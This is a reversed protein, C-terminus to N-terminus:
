MSRESMWIGRVGGDEHATGQREHPCGAPGARCPCRLRVSESRLTRAPGTPVSGQSPRLRRITPAFGDSHVEHTVHPKRAVIKARCAPRGAARVPQRVAPSNGGVRYDATMISVTTPMILLRQAVRVCCGQFAVNCTNRPRDGQCGFAVCPLPPGAVQQFNGLARWPTSASSSEAMKSVTHCAARLLGQELWLQPLTDNDLYSAHGRDLECHHM